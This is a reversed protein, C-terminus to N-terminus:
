LHIHAVYAKNEKLHPFYLDFQNIILLTLAQCKSYAVAKLNVILHPPHEMKPSAPLNM